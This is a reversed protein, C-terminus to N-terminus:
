VPADQVQVRTRSDISGYTALRWLWEAPGFRFRRVWWGSFWVQLAFVALVLVFRSATGFRDSWGLGFRSFILFGLVFQMLFNTLALRGTHALPIMWRRLTPQLVFLVITAGYCLSWALYFVMYDFRQLLDVWLSSGPPWVKALEYVSWSMLGVVFGVVAVTRLLRRHREPNTLIGARGIYLGLLFVGVIQVERFVSGLSTVRRGFAVTDHQVLPVYRATNFFQNEARRAQAARKEEEQLARRGSRQELELRHRAIQRQQYRFFIPADVVSLLLLLVSWRLVTRNSARVFPLLALGGIAYRNLIPIGQLVVECLWGFVFLAALRRLYPGLFPEGRRQSRLLLLSFGIGFSLCFLPWFRDEFVTVLIWSAIADLGRTMESPQVLKTDGYAFNVLFVGALAFGRLVDLAPLREAPQTPATPM